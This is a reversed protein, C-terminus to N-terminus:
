VLASINRWQRASMMGHTSQRSAKSGATEYACCASGSISITLGEGSGARRATLGLRGTVM